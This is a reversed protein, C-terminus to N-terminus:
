SILKWEQDEGWLCMESEIEKGDDGVPLNARSSPPTPSHTYGIMTGLEARM